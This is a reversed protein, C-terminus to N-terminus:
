TSYALCCSRTPAQRCRVEQSPSAATTATRSRGESSPSPSPSVSSTRFSPSTRSRESPAARRCTSPGDDTFRLTCEDGVGYDDYDKPDVAVQAAPHYQYGGYKDHWGETSPDGIKTVADCLLMDLAEGEDRDARIAFAVAGSFVGFEGRMLLMRDSREPLWDIVVPPLVKRSLVDKPVDTLDLINM